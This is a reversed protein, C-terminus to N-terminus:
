ANALGGRRVKDLYKCLCMSWLVGSLYAIAFAVLYELPSIPLMVPSRPSPPAPVRNYQRLPWLQGHEPPHYIASFIKLGVPPPRVIGASSFQKSLDIIGM